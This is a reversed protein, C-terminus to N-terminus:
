EYRRVVFTRGWSQCTGVIQYKSSTLYNEIHMCSQVKLPIESQDGPSKTYIFAVMPKNAEKLERAIQAGYYCTNQVGALEYVFRSAPRLSINLFHLAMINIGMEAYSHRGIFISKYSSLDGVLRRCDAIIERTSQALVNKPTLDLHPLNLLVEVILPSFLFIYILSTVSPFRFKIQMLLFVSGLVFGYQYLHYGDLHSVGYIFLFACGPLWWCLNNILKSRSFIIISTFSILLGFIMIPAWSDDTLSSPISIRSLQSYLRPNVSWSFKFLLDYAYKSAGVAHMYVFLGLTGIFFGSTNVLWILWVNSNIIITLQRTSKFVKRSIVLVFLTLTQFLVLLILWDWRLWVILVSSIFMLMLANVSRKELHWWSAFLNTQIFLLIFPDGWLYTM